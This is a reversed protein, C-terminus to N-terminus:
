VAANANETMFDRVTCELIKEERYHATRRQMDQIKEFFVPDTLVTKINKKIAAADDKDKDAMIGIKHFHVRAACGNQDSRKGSCVLMPVGFHLCENITHIGGHNISLDAQALVKLQPIYGFAFVNEPLNTLDKEAALGGLGIILLWDKEEGVATCLKQLFATDGRRFTSVSCYLLRKGETRKREFIKELKKETKADTKGEKRQAFVQRGIYVSGPRPVHPFEAEFDTMCLVPLEAYTFPGPWFNDPIYRLPFGIKQAYALLVSRRDTGGSLLRKKAFIRKRERRLNRWRKKLVTSSGSRGVGPITADTLPPLGDREWLSFWQSLLLVPMKKAVATMIHEHLEVDILLLDPKVSMIKQWFIETGLNDIAAAQRTKKHRQKYIFRQVKRGFGKFNPIEPAPEYNVPPLQLFEFGQLKVQEGVACPAGLTVRMGDRQLNAAAAFSANLIGTLGTTLILVHM